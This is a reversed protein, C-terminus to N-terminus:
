ARKRDGLADVQHGKWDEDQCQLALYKGMSNPYFAFIAGKAGIDLVAGMTESLEYGAFRGSEPVAASAPVTWFPREVAPRNTRAAVAKPVLQDVGSRRLQTSLRFEFQSVAIPEDGNHRGISIPCPRHRVVAHYPRVNQAERRGKDTGPM